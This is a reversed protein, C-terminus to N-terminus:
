YGNDESIRQMFRECDAGQNEEVTATDDKMVKTIFWFPLPLAVDCRGRGSTTLPEYHRCDKCRQPKM